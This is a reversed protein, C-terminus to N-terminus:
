MVTPGEDSAWITMSEFGLCTGWIPYFQGQDNLEVILDFMPAGWDLYDGDGGPFVLGNLSRLKSETVDWDEYMIIPVVRAGAAEVWKVYAAMIYSRYGDFRSDTSWEDPM